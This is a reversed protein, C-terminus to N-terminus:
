ATGALRQAFRHPHALHPFHGSSPWTLIQIDPLREVLWQRYAPEPEDGLITLYPVGTARVKDLTQDMAGVLEEVPRTLLDHWYSLVLDQRPTSHERLLDQADPPLVNLRMSALFMQWVQAFGSGTAMEAVSRLLAAFPKVWLAGDVNIVGSTPFAAAYFTAYVGAASHGVVVPSDVGALEVARHITEAIEQPGNGQQTPSQGHGPLDFALVHRDPEVLQLAAITDRWMVRDFTLGHLLVLPPRGDAGGWEDATVDGITRTTWATSTTLTMSREGV